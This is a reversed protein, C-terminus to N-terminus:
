QGSVRIFGVGGQIPVNATRNTTPLGINSWVTNTLSNKFQVQFPPTGYAWDVVVNAGNRAISIIHPKLVRYSQIANPYTSDNILIKDGTVLNTVSFFQETSRGTSQFYIVQFPYVGSTTVVFDFLTDAAGRGGDFLGLVIPSGSVGQPPLANVEFGDDSNVGFRYYGTPLDLFLSAETSFWNAPTPPMGPFPQGGAFDGENIGDGQFNIVTDFSYSGDVNTGLVADNTYPQSTNTNILTGNLQAQARAISSDLATPASVQSNASVVLFTFGPVAGSGSPLAYAPPLTAFISSFETQYTYAAGLNDSYTLTYTQSGSRALLNTGPYSVTTLGGGSSISPPPSVLNGDLKLRISSAVLTTAGNTISAQFPYYVAPVGTQDDAPILPPDYIAVVNTQDAPPTYSVVQPGSPFVTAPLQAFKITDVAINYAGGEVEGAGLTSPVRAIRLKLAQGLAGTYNLNVPHDNMADSLFSLTTPGSVVNTGALVSVQYTFRETSVYYPFFNFSEVMVSASASDPAFTLDHIYGLDSDNLQAAGPDSLWNLYYDWHTDSAGISGWTLGINPTGFGTVTVGESSNTANDGFSQLIGPCGANCNNVQGPPLAAFDLTTDAQAGRGLFVGVAALALPQFRTIRKLKM